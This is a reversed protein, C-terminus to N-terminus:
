MRTPAEIGLLSLGHQLRWQTRSALSARWQRLSPSGAKLVPHTEYWRNFRRALEYVYQTIISPDQAAAAAEIEEEYCLLQEILAQEELQLCSPLDSSSSLEEEVRQLLTCIRAYTYQVFTGTAAHVDLSAEPNFLIRKNPHVKLLFFKIAGLALQQHLKSKEQTSLESTKGLVQSKKVALQELEDLLTDADVVTGERSKMKGFPLDVMSYSIHQVKDVYERELRRLLLLLVKFHYNQEDGVVYLSSSFTYEKARLDATGLEQTIYVSTGDSRLLIKEGLGEEVMDVAVAGTEKRYFVGKKLGEEIVEKGLLYTESEYYTKDFSTGLRRYTLDFGEYVWSNLKKWLARVKPDNEEWARLLQQAQQMISSEAEAAKKELGREQAESAEKRFIEEFRVYYHGVFHDGKCNPSPEADGDECLYAAMSKCIHVGRDNVLNVRWVQHGLAELLRAISDGLFINRMHGLHLPKNTNPSAYEILVQQKPLQESLKEELESAAEIWVRDCLHLNLFGQVVQYSDVLKSEKLVDGLSAGVEPLSKKVEKTLSFLTLTLQGEFHKPTSRIQLEGEKVKYSFRDKLVRACVQCISQMIKSM